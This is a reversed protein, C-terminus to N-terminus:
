PGCVLRLVDAAVPSCLRYFNHMGERRYEVVGTRRLVGLHASTNPQTLGGAAQLDGVSAEGREALSLLMRVRAEHALANFLRAAQAPALGQTTAPRPVSRVLRLVDAAVPSDRRFLIRKGERRYEAVGARRLVGLHHSANTETLGLAAQLDGVRAEGREALLLLMGVRAEHALADFLRAAQARSLGYTKRPV